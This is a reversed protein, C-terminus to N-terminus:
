RGKRENSGSYYADAIKPYGMDHLVTLVVSMIEYSSTTGDTGRITKIKDEVEKVILDIDKQNLSINIDNGTNTVSVQIKEPIFDVVNGRKKVVKLM